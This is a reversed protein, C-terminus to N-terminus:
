RPAVRLEHAAGDRGKLRVSLTEVAAIEWGGVVDGAEVRLNRGESRSRLLAIARDGDRVIGLLAYDPTAPPAPPPEFVPAAEPPAPTPPPRRTPAFLPRETMDRLSEKHLSALPNVMEGSPGREAVANWSQVGQAPGAPAVVDPMEPESNMDLWLLAGLGAAALMLIPLRNAAV